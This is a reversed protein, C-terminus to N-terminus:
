VYNAEDDTPPISPMKTKLDEEVPARMPIRNRIPPHVGRGSAETDRQIENHPNM